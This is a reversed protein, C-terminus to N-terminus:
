QDFLEYNNRDDDFFFNTLRQILFKRNPQSAAVVADLIEPNFSSIMVKNAIGLDNIM